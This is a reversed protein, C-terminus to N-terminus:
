GTKPQISDLIRLINIFTTEQLTTEKKQNGLHCVRRRRTMGMDCADNGPPRRTDLTTGVVWLSKLDIVLRVGMLRSMCGVVWVGVFVNCYRHVHYINFCFQIKDIHHINIEYKTIQCLEM